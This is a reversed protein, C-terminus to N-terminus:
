MASIRAGRLVNKFKMALVSMARVCADKDAADTVRESSAKWRLKQRVHLRNMRHVTSQRLLQHRDHTPIARILVLVSWLYM